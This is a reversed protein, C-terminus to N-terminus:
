FYVKSGVGLSYYALGPVATGNIYFRLSESIKYDLDISLEIDLSNYSDSEVLVETVMNESFRLSQVYQNDVQSYRGGLGAWLQLNPKDMLSRFIKLSFTSMNTFEVNTNEDAGMTINQFADLFSPIQESTIRSIDKAKKNGRVIGYNAGAIWKDSIIRKYGIRLHKLPSVGDAGGLTYNFDIINSMPQRIIIVDSDAFNITLPIESERILELELDMISAMAVLMEKSERNESLANMSIAELNGKSSDSDSIDLSSASDEVSSNSDMQNGIHTNNSSRTKTKQTTSQSQSNKNEKNYGLASSSLSSSKVNGRISEEDLKNNRKTIDQSLESSETTTGSTNQDSILATSEGQMPDTSTKSDTLNSDVNETTASSSSIMSESKSKGFSKILVFALLMLTFLAIAAAIIFGTRLKHVKATAGQDLLGSMAAWAEKDTETKHNRIRDKYDM